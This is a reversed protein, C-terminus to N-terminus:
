SDTETHSGRIINIYTATLLSHNNFSPEERHQVEQLMDLSKSVMPGTLHRILDNLTGSHLPMISFVM